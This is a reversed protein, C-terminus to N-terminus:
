ISYQIKLLPLKNFCCYCSTVTNILEGKGLLANPLAKSEPNTNRYTTTICLQTRYRERCSGSHTHECVYVCVCMYIYIGAGGPKTTVCWGGQLHSPAQPAGPPGAAVGFAGPQPSASPNRARGVAGDGAGAAGLVPLHPALLGSGPPPLRDCPEPRASGGSAPPPLAGVQAVVAWGPGPYDSWLEEAVLGGRLRSPLGSRSM